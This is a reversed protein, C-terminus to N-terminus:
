SDTKPVSHSESEPHKKKRAERIMYVELAALLIEHLQKTYPTMDVTKQEANRILVLEKHIETPEQPTM